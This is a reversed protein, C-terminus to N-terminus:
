FGPMKVLGPVYSSSGYQYCIRQLERKADRDIEEVAIKESKNKQCWRFYHTRDLAQLFGGKQQFTLNSWNVSNGCLTELDYLQGSEILIRAAFSYVISVPRAKQCSVKADAENLMLLGRRRHENAQITAYACQQEQSLLQHQQSLLYLNKVYEIEDSAQSEEAIIELRSENFLQALGKFSNGQKRLFNCIDKKQDYLNKQRDDSEASRVYDRIM